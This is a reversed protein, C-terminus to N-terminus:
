KSAPLPTGSMTPLVRADDVVALSCGKELAQAAFQNGDFSDGRLAIFISGEPCDRSDTTVRPHRTYFEYLKQIDMMMSFQKLQVFNCLFESNDWRWGLFFWVSLFTESKRQFLTGNKVGGQMEM